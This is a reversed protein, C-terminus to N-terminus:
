EIVYEVNDFVITYDSRLKSMREVLDLPDGDIFENNIDVGYDGVIDRLDDMNSFMASYVVTDKKPEYLSEPRWGGVFDRRRISSVNISQLKAIAASRSLSNLKWTRAEVFSSALIYVEGPFKLSLASVEKRRFLKCIKNLESHSVIADYVMPTDITADAIIQTLEDLKIKSCNKCSWRKCTTVMAAHRGSRWVCYLLGPCGYGGTLIGPLKPLDSLEPNKPLLEQVPLTKGPPWHDQIPM